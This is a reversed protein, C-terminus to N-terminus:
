GESYFGEGFGVQVYGTQRNLPMRINSIEGFESFRDLIDENGCEEHVGTIFIIWGEIALM